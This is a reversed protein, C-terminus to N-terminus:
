KRYLTEATFVTISLFLKILLAAPKVPQRVRECNLLLKEGTLDIVKLRVLAVADCLEQKNKM